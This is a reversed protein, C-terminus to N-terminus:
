LDRLYIRHGTEHAVTFALGLGIDENITCSEQKRCMGGISALGLTGCPKNKNVCIDIGTLLVSHDPKRELAAKQSSQWRCFNLLSHDARHSLELKSDDDLLVLGIIIINVEDELSRDKFLSSVMNMVTLIYMTINREDGQHNKILAKDAVVLTEVSKETPRREGASAVARDAASYDEEIDDATPIASRKSRFVREAKMREEEEERTELEIEGNSLLRFTKNEFTEPITVPHRRGKGCYQLRPKGKELHRKKYIVHPHLSSDFTHNLDPSVPEIIVDDEGTRLLGTLGDCTSLAVPRSGHSVLQGHYHCGWHTRDKEELIESGGSGMRKVYFDPSLLRSNPRLDILFQQGLGHVRYHIVHNIQKDNDKSADRRVRSPRTHRIEYTVHKYQADTKSPIVIQFDQLHKHTTTAIKHHLYRHNDTYYSPWIRGIKTATRSKSTSKTFAEGALM